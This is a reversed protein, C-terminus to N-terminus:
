LTIKIFKKSSTIKSYLILKRGTIRICYNIAHNINKQIDLNTRFSKIEIYKLVCFIYFCTTFLKSATRENPKIDSTFHVSIFRM